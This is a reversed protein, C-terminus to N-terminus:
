IKTPRWNKLIEYIKLCKYLYKVLFNQYMVTKVSQSCSRWHVVDWPWAALDLLFERKFSIGEFYANCQQCSCARASSLTITHHMESLSTHWAWLINRTAHTCCIRSIIEFEKFIAIQSFKSGWFNLGICVTYVWGVCYSWYGQALNSLVKLVLWSAVHIYPLVSIDTVCLWMHM